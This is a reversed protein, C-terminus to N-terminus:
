YAACSSAGRRKYLLWTNGGGHIGQHGTSRLGLGMPEGTKIYGEIKWPALTKIKVRSEVLGGYLVETKPGVISFVTIVRYEKGYIKRLMSGAEETDKPKGLIEGDVVVITDAGIV